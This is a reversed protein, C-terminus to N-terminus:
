LTPRRARGCGAIPSSPVMVTAFAFPISVFAASPRYATPANLMV